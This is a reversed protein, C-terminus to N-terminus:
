EQSEQQNTKMANMTIKELLIFLHDQDEEEIGELLQQTWYRLISKIKPRLQKAKETLFINNSRRDSEDKKRLIYGEQELKKIARAVTAKDIHLHNALTEQNIREHTYLMMLFHVQGSGLHYDGLQHHLYIHFNRHICSIYRGISRPKEM